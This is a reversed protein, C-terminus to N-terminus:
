NLIIPFVPSNEGKRIGTFFSVIKGENIIVSTLIINNCVVYYVNEYNDYQLNYRTQLNEDIQNHQYVNYQMDCNKLSQSYLYEYAKVVEILKDNGAAELLSDKITMLELLGQIDTSDSKVIIEFFDEVTKLNNVSQCSSLNAVFLLTVVILYKM